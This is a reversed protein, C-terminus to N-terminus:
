RKISIWHELILEPSESHELILRDRPINWFEDDLPSFFTPKSQFAVSIAPFIRNQQQFTGSATGFIIESVQLSIYGFVTGSDTVAEWIVPFTPSLWHFTWSRTGFSNWFRWSENFFVGSFQLFTPFRWSGYFFTFTGTRNWFRWGLVHIWRWSKM